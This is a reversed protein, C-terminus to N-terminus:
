VGVAYAVRVRGYSREEMRYGACVFLVLVLWVAGKMLWELASFM